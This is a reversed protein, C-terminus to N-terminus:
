SLGEGSRSNFGLRRWYSDSTNDVQDSRKTNANDSIIHSGGKHCNPGAYVFIFMQVLETIIQLEILCAM